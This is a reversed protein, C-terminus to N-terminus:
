IVSQSQSVFIVHTNDLWEAHMKAHFIVTLSNKLWYKDYVYFHYRQSFEAHMKAHFIVTKTPEARQQM